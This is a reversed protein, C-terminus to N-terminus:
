SSYDAPPIRLVSQKSLGHIFVIHYIYDWKIHAMSMDSM